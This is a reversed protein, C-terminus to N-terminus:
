SRNHKWEDRPSVPPQPRGRPSPRGNSSSANMVENVFSALTSPHNGSQHWRALGARVDAVDHEEALLASLEKAVQGVVRDPPRKRCHDLWEAVLTQATVAPPQAATPPVDRDDTDTLGNPTVSVSVSVANSSTQKADQNGIQKSSAKPPKQAPRKRSKIGGARGAQARVESLREVDEKTGNRRVYACVEWGQKDNAECNSVEKTLGVSALQKALQNAHDVPLPYALVGIEEAPVFGDSLNEKCYLIMQVYLDRALGADAGYRVLARVKPDRPYGVVLKIYIESVSM